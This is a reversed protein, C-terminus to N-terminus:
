KRMRATFWDRVRELLRKKPERADLSSDANPAREGNPLVQFGHKAFVNRLKLAFFLPDEQEARTVHAHYPNADPEPLDVPSPSIAFDYASGRVRLHKAAVTAWGHFERPPAFRTGAAKAKPQLYRGVSKDVGSRGLRDVSVEPSRTEEFHRVDLGGWSPQNQAGRLMPEDFMRRGIHENAGVPEDARPKWKAM